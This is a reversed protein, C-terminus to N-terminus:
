TQSSLGYSGYSIFLDAPDDIKIDDRTNLLMVCDNIDRFLEDGNIDTDYFNTLIECKEKFM